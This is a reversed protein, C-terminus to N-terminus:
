RRTELVLDVILPSHDSYREKGISVKEARWEDSTLVHDIRAGIWGNHKTTGLGFGARSFADNLHGWHEQFIRSEVPTNFDGLVVVPGSGSDVWARAMNSEVDRIETNMRMRRLDHDMLGEFGKRPTELHLNAFRMPGAPGELVYRVVYGAGGIEKEESQKVRDLNSRDMVEAVRIPYRSLLCLDKSVHIHWGSLARTATALEDGCEQFAVVQAQWRDLLRPLAQAAMRGGDTNFSVVRIPTGAAHPLLRRWGTRFGMIPGLVVLGGLALPLLMRPWLWFVLPALVILPLLIVWRGMFLLVTGTVVRDGLGWMVAAVLVVAGLYGWALVAAVKWYRPRPLIIRPSKSAENSASKQKAKGWGWWRGRTRKSRRRRKEAPRQIALHRGCRRCRLEKGVNAEDVHFREGCTCDLTFTTM